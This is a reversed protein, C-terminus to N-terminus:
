LQGQILFDNGRVQTIKDIDQQSTVVIWAKGGCATGLDETVTQLNLMLKSDEGIYQGIEDVLFVVHHNSGKQDIHQKVMQAFSAVDINYTGTASECWNKAADMSMYDITVLADCIQDQIFRFQHRSEM